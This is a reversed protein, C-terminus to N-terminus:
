AISFASEKLQIHMIFFITVQEIYRIMQKCNM